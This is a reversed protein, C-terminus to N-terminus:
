LVKTGRPVQIAAATLYLAQNPPLDKAGRKALAFDM